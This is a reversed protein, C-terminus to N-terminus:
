RLEVGDDHVLRARDSTTEARTDIVYPQEAVSHLVTVGHERRVFPLSDRVALADLLPTTWVHQHLDVRMPSLM